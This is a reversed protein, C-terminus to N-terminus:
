SRRTKRRLLSLGILGSGFLVFGMPEPTVTPQANPVFNASISDTITGGAAIIAILNAVTAPLGTSDITGVFHSTFTASYVTGNSCSTATETGASGTYGCYIATLSVDASNATNPPNITDQTFVFPSGAIACSGPTTAPPCAVPTPFVLSLLDFTFGNLTLATLEPFAQAPGIDKISGTTTGVTGFITDSPANLTVTANTGCGTAANYYDICGTALTGNVAVSFNGINFAGGQTFPIPNALAANPGVALAAIALATIVMIKTLGYERSMIDNSRRTELRVDAGM